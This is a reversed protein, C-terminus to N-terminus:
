NSGGFTKNFEIAVAEALHPEAMGVCKIAKGGFYESLNPVSIVPVNRRVAYRRVKESSNEALSQDCIVLYVMKKSAIVNEYGYVLKGAKISFGIYSAIKDNRSM